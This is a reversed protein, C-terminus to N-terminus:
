YDDRLGLIKALTSTVDFSDVPYLEVIGDAERYIHLVKLVDGMFVYHPKALQLANERFAKYTAKDRFRISYQLNEKSVIVNWDKKFKEIIDREKNDPMVYLEPEEQM